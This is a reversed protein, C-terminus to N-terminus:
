STTLGDIAGAVDAPRAVLDLHAGLLEVVPWGQTRAREADRRYPESLLICAGNAAAPWADPLTLRTEFAWLPLRPMEAAVVRRREPDPVLEVMAEPGFWESWPPLVGDRALGRLQAAAEDPVLAMTGRAPPIGADVFVLREPRRGTAAAVLPLLPGAGSHGVLVVGDDVARAPAAAAEVYAEWNGAAAAGVLSPVTVQRGRAVLEEAVWGWTAPGVLPSHILVIAAAV